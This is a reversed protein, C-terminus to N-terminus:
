APDLMMLAQDYAFEQYQDPGTDQTATFTTNILAQTVLTAVVVEICPHM